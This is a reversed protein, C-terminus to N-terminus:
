KDTEVRLPACQQEGLESLAADRYEESRYIEERTAHNKKMAILKSDHDPDTPDPHKTKPGAAVNHMGEAHRILYITKM